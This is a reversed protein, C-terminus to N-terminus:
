CRRGREQVQRRRVGHVYRRRGGVLGRQLHLHEFSHEACALDVGGPLEQVECRRGCQVQRRRMGHMRRWEDGVLWCQM